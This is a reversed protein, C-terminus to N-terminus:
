GDALRGAHKLLALKITDFHRMEAGSLGDRFFATLDSFQCTQGTACMIQLWLHEHCEKAIECAAAGAALNAVRGHQVPDYGPISLETLPDSNVEVTVALMYADGTAIARQVDNLVESKRAAKLAGREIVLADAYENTVGICREMLAKVQTIAKDRRPSQEGRVFHKPELAALEQCRNFAFSAYFAGGEEPRRLADQIFAAYNPTREFETRMADCSKVLAPQTAHGSSMIGIVSLAFALRMFKM